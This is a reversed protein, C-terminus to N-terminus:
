KLKKEMEPVNLELIKDEFKWISIKGSKKYGLKEYFKQATLSPYIILKRIGKKRAYDEIFKILMTGYGKKLKSYKVSLGGIKNDKLSITGLLEKNNWLCFMNEKKMSILINKPNNKELWIKIVHIPYDKSNIEKITKKRLFSIKTIDEKKAKIIKM